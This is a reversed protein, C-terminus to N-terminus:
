SQANKWRLLFETALKDELDGVITTRYGYNYGDITTSYYINTAHKMCWKGMDTQQWEYIPFAVMLDPDDVDGMQIEKVLTGRDGSRPM